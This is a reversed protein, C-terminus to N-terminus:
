APRITITVTTRDKCGQVMKVQGSRSHGAFNVEADAVDQEEHTVQYGATGKLTTSFITHADGISTGATYGSAVTSPGDQEVGTFTLGKVSPFSGPLTPAPAMAAPAPGCAKKLNEKDKEGFLGCGTLVLCAPALVLLPALRRM